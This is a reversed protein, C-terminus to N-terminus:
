SPERSKRLLHLGSAIRHVGHLMPGWSVLHVGVGHVQGHTVVAVLLGGIFWAAGFEISRRGRTERAVRQEATVGNRATPSSGYQRTGNDSL